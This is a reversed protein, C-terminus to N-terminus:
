IIVMVRWVLSGRAQQGSCVSGQGLRPCCSVMGDRYTSWDTEGTKSHTIERRRSSVREGLKEM